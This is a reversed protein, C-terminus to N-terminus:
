SSNFFVLVYWELRGTNFEVVRKKAELVIGVAVKYNKSM